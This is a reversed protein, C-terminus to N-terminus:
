ECRAGSSYSPFSLLYHFSIFLSSNLLGLLAPNCTRSFRAGRRLLPHQILSSPSHVSILHLSPVSRFPPTFPHSRSQSHVSTFTFSLRRRSKHAQCTLVETLTTKSEHPPRKRVRTGSLFPALRKYIIGRSRQFAPVYTVACRYSVFSNPSM